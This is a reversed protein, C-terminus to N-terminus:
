MKPTIIRWIFCSFLNQFTPGHMKLSQFHDRWPMSGKELANIFPGELFYYLMDAIWRAALSKHLQTASVIICLLCMLPLMVVETFYVGEEVYGQLIIHYFCQNQMGHRTIAGMVRLRLFPHDCLYHSVTQNKNFHTTWFKEMIARTELFCGM